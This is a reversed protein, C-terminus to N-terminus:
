SSRWEEFELQWSGVALSWDELKWSGVRVKSEFRGIRQLNSTPLQVKLKKAEAALGDCPSAEPHTTAAQPVAAAAPLHRPRVRPPPAIPAPAPAPRRSRRHSAQVNPRLNGASPGGRPAIRPGIPARPPPRSRRRSAQVNPPRNGANTDARPAIHPGIPATPPSRRRVAMNSGRRRAATLRITGRPPVLVTPAGPAMVAAATPPASAYTRRLAVSKPPRTDGAAHVARREPAASQRVRPRLPDASSGAGDTGQRRDRGDTRRAAAGGRNDSPEDHRQTWRFASPPAARYIDAGIGERNSLMTPTVTRVQSTGAVRIPAVGSGRAVAHGTVVPAVDRPVFSSRTREDIAASHIVRRNVFGVGFERQPIVTWARWPDYGRGVNVNVFQLVPRNNFGLPCWSVYGPAYAWSVWAPSWSRGPIWFWLGSSFGWRGYHHTPWAWADSGIWTWGYPRLSSWRGHYYPRWGVDVRPYWVYGYSSEYQWAGYRDLTGAYPRVEDPLYQTSLALRESRRGESWRDFPDWSASNFVYAYSPAADARAFAREGARLPTRGGENVLEANGRLVAFELETQGANQLVAARYEGAESIQAWAHPGDIRYAVNRARGPISLRIRGDLLRVLEDSQLDIATNHDLHLTSGDAFLIEVRGARTRVRDGALLPMNSPADDTRGDRELAAVGEVFSIHAPADAELRAADQALARTSVCVTVMLSAAFITVLRRVM